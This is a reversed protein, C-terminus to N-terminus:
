YSQVSHGGKAIHMRIFFDVDPILQSFANLEGLARDADSLLQQIEGDSFTWAHNIVEPDFSKYEYQQKYSGARYDNIDM